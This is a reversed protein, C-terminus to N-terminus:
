KWLYGNKKIKEINAPELPEINIKPDKEKKM